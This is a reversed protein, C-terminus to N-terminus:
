FSSHLVVFQYSHCDIVLFFRSLLPPSFLSLSLHLSRRCATHPLWTAALDCWDGGPPLDSDRGVMCSWWWGKGRVRGEPSMRIAASLLSHPSPAVTFCTQHFQVLVWCIKDCLVHHPISPQYSWSSIDGRGHYSGPTRSSTSWFVGPQQCRGSQLRCHYMAAALMHSPCWSLYSLVITFVTPCPFFCLDM